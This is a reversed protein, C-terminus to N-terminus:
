ASTASGIRGQEAIVELLKQYQEASLELFTQITNLSDGRRYMKLGM